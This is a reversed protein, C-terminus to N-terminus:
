DGCGGREGALGLCEALPRVGESCTPHFLSTAATAAGACLSQATNWGEHRGLLFGAAFADGAGAAGRIEAPEIRLSPQWHGSEGKALAYAGEPAHLVVQGAGAALLARAAAEVADRDLREGERVAIGTTQTAEYDNLFLCDVWPLVPLVGQRFRGAAASVVDVSTTLGAARAARLVLAAQPVGDADPEDLADLLLLYGLHFHRARTAGFDFHRPALRANAGRRHFFTRRGTARVTMVDTYSTAEEEDVRLQDTDIHHQACDAAIWRGRDDDGILGIAELPFPAGLKALDKLVNYASGGNGMSESAINALADQAPWTDLLKVHDVIWNGGAIIGRRESM